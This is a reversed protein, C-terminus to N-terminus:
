LRLRFLEELLGGFPRALHRADLAHRHRRHDRHRVIRDPEHRNHRLTILEGGALVVDGDDGGGCVFRIQRRHVNREELAAVEAPLVIRLRRPDRDHVLVQRVV